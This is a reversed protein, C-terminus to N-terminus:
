RRIRRSSSSTRHSRAKPLSREIRQLLKRAGKIRRIARRAARVNMPNLHRARYVKVVNGSADRVVVYGGERSKTGGNALVQATPSLSSGGSISIGQNTVSAQYGLAVQAAAGAGAIISGLPNL